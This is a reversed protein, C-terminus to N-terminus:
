ITFPNSIAKNWISETHNWSSGTDNRRALNIGQVLFRLASKRTPQNGKKLSNIKNRGMGGKTVLCLCLYNGLILRVLEVTLNTVASHSAAVSSAVTRAAPREPLDVIM